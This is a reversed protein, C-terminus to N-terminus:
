SMGLLNGLLYIDAQSQPVLDLYRYERSEIKEKKQNHIIQLIQHFTTRNAEAIRFLYSTLAEGEEIRPRIPFINKDKM